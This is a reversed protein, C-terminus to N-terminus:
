VTQRLERHGPHISETVIRSFEQGLDQDDGFKVKSPSGGAFLADAAGLLGM